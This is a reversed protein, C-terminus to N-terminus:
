FVLAMNILGIGSQHRSPAILSVHRLAASCHGSADISMGQDPGPHPTACVGQPERRPACATLRRPSHVAVCGPGCPSALPCTGGDRWGDSGIM